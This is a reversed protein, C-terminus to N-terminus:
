EERGRGSSVRVSDSSCPEESRPVQRPHMLQSDKRRSWIYGALGAGLIVVNETEDPQDETEEDASPISPLLTFHTKPPRYTYRHVYAYVVRRIEDLAAPPFAIFIMKFFILLTDWGSKKHRAANPAVTALM